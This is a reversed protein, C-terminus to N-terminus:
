VIKDVLLPVVKRFQTLFAVLEESPLQRVVKRSATDLIQAVIRGIEKDYSIRLTTEGGSSFAKEPEGSGYRERRKGAQAPNSMSTLAQPLSGRIIRVADM